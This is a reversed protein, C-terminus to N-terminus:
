FLVRLPHAGTVGTDKHIEICYGSWDRLGYEWLLQAVRLTVAAAAGKDGNMISIDLEDMLWYAYGETDGYYSKSVAWRGEWHKTRYGHSESTKGAAYPNVVSKSGRRMREEVAYQMAIKKLLEKLAEKHYIEQIAIIDFPNDRIIRGLTDLDKKTEGDSKIKVSNSSLKQINFSAIRIGTNRGHDGSWAEIILM